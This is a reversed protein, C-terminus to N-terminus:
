IYYTEGKRISHYEKEGIIVHDIIEIRIIEAAEILKETVNKDAESPKSNGSPHNHVLVIKDSNTLMAFKFIEKPSLTLSTTTGMNSIAYGVVELKINLPIVLLVERDFWGILDKAMEYVDKSSYIQYKAYEEKLTLNSRDLKIKIEQFKKEIMM